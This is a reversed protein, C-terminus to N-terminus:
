FYETLLYVEECQDGLEEPLEGEIDTIEFLNGYFDETSVKANPNYKKLKEILEQITM